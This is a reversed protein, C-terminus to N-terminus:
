TTDVLILHSKLTVFTVKELSKELKKATEPDSGPNSSTVLKRLCFLEQVQTLVDNEKGQM